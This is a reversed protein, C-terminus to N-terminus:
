LAVKPHASKIERVGATISRQFVNSSWVEHPTERVGLIFFSSIMAMRSVVEHALFPSGHGQM